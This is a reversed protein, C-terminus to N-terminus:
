KTLKSTREILLQRVFAPLTVGFRAAVQRWAKIDEKTAYVLFASTKKLAPEVRPATRDYAM